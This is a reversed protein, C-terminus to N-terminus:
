TIEYRFVVPRRAPSSKFKWAFSSFSPVCRITRQSLQGKKTGKKKTSKTHKTSKTVPRRGTCRSLTLQEGQDEAV